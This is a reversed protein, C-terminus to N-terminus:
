SVFDLRKDPELREPPKAPNLRRSLGGIKGTLRRGRSLTRGVGEHSQSTLEGGTDHYLPTDTPPNEFCM